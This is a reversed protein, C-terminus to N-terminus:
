SQSGYSSFTQSPLIIPTRPDVTTYLPAPHVYGTTTYTVSNPTYSVSTPAYPVAAAVHTIASTRLLNLMDGVRQVNVIDDFSSPSRPINQSNISKHSPNQLTFISTALPIQPM